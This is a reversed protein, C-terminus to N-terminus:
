PTQSCGCGRPKIGTELQQEHKYSVHVSPVVRWPSLWTFGPQTEMGLTWNPWMKSNGPNPFHVLWHSVECISVREQERFICPYIKKKLFIQLISVLIFYILLIINNFFALKLCSWQSKHLFNIFFNYFTAHIFCKMINDENIINRQLTEHFM